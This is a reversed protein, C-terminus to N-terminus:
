ISLKYIVNAREALLELLVDGHCTEPKCWCGLTKGRLEEIESVLPGEKRRKGNVPNVGTKIWERYLELSKERGYKKVTFPNAWKSATAVPGVYFVMNRGIYKNQDPAAKVWEELSAHGLPLLANKKVCIVNGVLNNESLDTESDSKQELTDQNYPNM